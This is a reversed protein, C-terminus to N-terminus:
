SGLYAESLRESKGVEASPGSFDMAGVRMVYARDSIELAKTVNQEVVLISVHDDRNIRKLLGFIEQLIMPALGLSPEDLLMLRPRAVLARAIALQRQEGGSLVGAFQRRRAGLAPFRELMQAVRSRVAPLDDLLFRGGVELNEEVTMRPLVVHQAPVYGIGLRALMFGPRGELRHRQTGDWFEIRGRAPPVLGAVARLVSTKGAGNPGLLAVVEGPEINLSIDSAAIVSGYRVELDAVALVPTPSIASIPM